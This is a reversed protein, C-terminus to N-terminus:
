RVSVVPAGYKIYFESQFLEEPDYKRKFEFFERGQPYARDFQEKTAHLRYPLYYHGEHALAAEILERTVAQMQQEGATTREQVFLMVFAFMPQDAYRLFTDEDENVARVTVNLLNAAHEPVIRRMQAVFGAARDRPVFYEHLIDTSAASRNQFVEAGENLLQNRSYITGALMPQLRTEADWRLEKGYESEASGRFVSRRLKVMGPDRLPPIAGGSDRVFANLVVEQFLRGPVIGMRAYVMQVGPQDKIKSDLTVLSQDVPVIYQELRYRENPVVRLEVDLIVGFLGYGGLVLSFLEANENRSCRVITGDAQMLRFSEVTSAIPPRDYQWGHCNVSISGGVSFSNNSQMVAVSRGRPDLYTIIDKWIAGSQVKLIDRGEDLKMRNWPRMDIVIGGPYITHGGMSHRAGAISVRRGEARARALLQALQAEAEAPDSPVPWVEAVPTRNLRSADDVYGAPLDELGDIDGSATRVLHIVPRALVGALVLLVFAVIILVRRKRTSMAQRRYDASGAGTCLTQRHGIYGLLDLGDDTV